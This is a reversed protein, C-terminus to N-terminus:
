EADIAADQGLLQESSSPAVVRLGHQVCFYRLLRRRSLGAGLGGQKRFGLTEARPNRGRTKKTRARFIHPIIPDGNPKPPVIPWAQNYTGRWAM